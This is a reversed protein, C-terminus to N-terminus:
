LEFDVMKEAIEEYSLNAERSYKAWNERSWIEVRGSVGIIVAEKQLAAHERLNPPILVRGQRDVECESAGAFFFRAFARADAKTFPLAKFRTELNQWEEQTYVFLCHDLGRTVIFKEGLLERFRAPFIIRGKSDINHQYEGMFM